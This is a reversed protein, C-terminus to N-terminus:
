FGLKAQFGGWVFDDEYNGYWASDRYGDRISENLLSTYAVVGGISFCDCLQWTLTLKLTTGGIGDKNGRMFDGDEDEDEAEVYDREVGYLYDLYGGSGFNVNWDAGLTLSQGVPMEEMLTFDRSLGLEYHTSDGYRYM